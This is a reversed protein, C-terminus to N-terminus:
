RSRPNLQAVSSSHSVPSEGPCRYIRHPTPDPRKSGERECSDDGNAIADSPANARAQRWEKARVSSLGVKTSNVCGNLGLAAFALAFVVFPQCRM